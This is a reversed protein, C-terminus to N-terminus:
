VYEMSQINGIYSISEKYYHQGNYYISSNYLNIEDQKLGFYNYIGNYKFSKNITLNMQTDIACFNNNGYFFNHYYFNGDYRPLIQCNDSYELNSNIFYADQNNNYVFGDSIFQSFDYQSNYYISGDFLKERGQNYTITGDYSLNPKHLDNLTLDLNNYLNETMEFSYNENTNLNLDFNQIEIAPLQNNGYSLINDYRFQGDFLINAKVEDSSILDFNIFCNDQNNNYIFGYSIFQSFDYQSNYYISGDFLKERGQNYTITGNYRTGWPLLDDYIITLLTYLSDVFNDFNDFLTSKFSLDNLHSRENKYQNILNILKNITTSTLSKTEGIDVIVDFLAWRTTDSYIFSNDYYYQGNYLIPQKDQFIQCDYYGLAKISEKISFPTGKHKHLLISKKIINRKEEINTALDYGDVNFQIALIDLLNENINEINSYIINSSIKNILDQLPQEFTDLLNELTECKLYLLDKLM